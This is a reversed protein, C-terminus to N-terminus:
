RIVVMKMSTVDGGSTWVRYFYVGTSLTGADFQVAHTGPDEMRDVITSIERGLMDYVTVRVHERHSLIYRITTRPNFPNPYNQDVRFASPAGAHPPDVSSVGQSYKVTNVVQWRYSSSTGSVYVNGATDLGLARVADTSNALAKHRADWDSTGDPRYKVVAYDYTRGPGMSEGGVYINGQRDLKLVSALDDAHGTGDYLAKWHEGGSSDIRVTLFDSFTYTSDYRDGAVYVNGYRDAAIGAAEASSRFGTSDRVVWKQKGSPAYAVTAIDNYGYSTDLSSGTVYVNGASDIAIGARRDDGGAPGDYRAVWAGGNKITVYDLASGYSYGTVYYNNKKDIAMAVAADDSGGDYSVNYTPAWQAVGAADYKIVTIDFNTGNYATGAVYIDLNNDVAIARPFNYGNGLRNFVAAWQQVGGPTYKVTVYDTLGRLNFGLGTVCVNGERDIAIGRGEEYSEGIGGYRASWLLLGAPDYKATMLDMSSAASFSGGTIYVNGANDLVMADVVDFSVGSGDYRKPWEPAENSNYKIVFYSDVSDAPIAGAVFIGGSSDVAIAVAEDDYNSQDNYIKPVQEFGAADYEITAFDNGSGAGLSTGTVFINGTRDLVLGVPRDIGGGTGIYTRSWQYAGGSDYRATLYDFSTVSNYSYGTVIVHEAPDIAIATAADVGNGPGNLRAVWQRIGLPSYKVTAYDTSTNRGYSRGTVYVAGSGGLALATAYDSGDGPGDYYAVWQRVGSPDYKITAYDNSTNFRVSSGTVYVNGSKDVALASPDDTTHAPGDYVAAWRLTGHSDFKITLFDDGTASSHSSGTVYVNRQDDLAIAVARDDTASPGAYIAAWLRTGGPDYAITVIDLEGFSNAGYGTVYVNRDRDVALGAAVPNRLERFVAVWQLVGTSDFKVSRLDTSNAGTVYVNGSRDTSMAAPRDGGLGSSYSGPWGEIKGSVYKITAFDSANGNSAGTVYANDDSDLAIAAPIDEGSGTGNYLSSTILTGASDYIATSYDSHLGSAYRTNGTVFVRGSRGVALGAAIDPGNERDNFRAEWKQSGGRNYKITAFDQLTGAGISTGTVYVNGSADCGVGTALDDGNAAGNYRASWLPQGPSTYVLTVYDYGSGPASSSGTVIVRASDDVVMGIAFDDGNSPSNYRNVWRIVGGPTYGVTAYDFGSGAGASFGTVTVNGAPDVAVGTAIDIGHATGDYRLAWEEAGASNYKVTVYDLDTSAGYGYGTVYVNGHSDLAISTAVDTSDPSGDHTAVWQRLGNRDYKVTIYEANDESGSGYGTVYVNEASDVALATPENYSNPSNEFRATWVTAGDPTYKILLFDGGSYTVDSVGAVYVNGERDVAVCNAVDNSADGESSVTKVWEERFSNGSSDASGRTITGASAAPRAARSHNPPEIRLNGPARGSATWGTFRQRFPTHGATSGGSPRITDRPSINRLGPRGGGGGPVGGM